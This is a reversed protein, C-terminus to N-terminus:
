EAGVPPYEIFTSFNGEFFELIRFTAWPTDQHALAIYKEIGSLPGFIAMVTFRGTPSHQMGTIDSFLVKFSKVEKFDDNILKLMDSVKASMVADVTKLTERTMSVCRGSQNFVQQADIM